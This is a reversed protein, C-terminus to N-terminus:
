RGIPIAGLEQRRLDLGRLWLRALDFGFERFHIVRKLGQVDLNVGGLRRPRAFRHFGADHPATARCNWCNGLWRWDIFDLSAAKSIGVANGPGTVRILSSVDALKSIR